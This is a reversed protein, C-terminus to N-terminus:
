PLPRPTGEQGPAAEPPKVAAVAFSIAMLAIFLSTMIFFKTLSIVLLTATAAALTRATASMLVLDHSARRAVVLGLAGVTACLLAFALSLGGFLDLFTREVGGPLLLPYSTVHLMMQREADGLPEPFGALHGALHVLATIFSAWCGFKFIWVQRPPV